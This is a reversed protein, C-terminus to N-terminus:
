SNFDWLYQCFYTGADSTATDHSQFVSGDAGVAGSVIGSTLSQNAGSALSATYGTAALIEAGASATGITIDGPGTSAGFAEQAILEISTITLAAVAYLPITESAAASIDVLISTSINSLANTEFDEVTLTAAAIQGTVIAAAAALDNTDILAHDEAFVRTWDDVGLAEDVKMWLATTDDTNNVEMYLSGKNCLTFPAFDAPTGQGWIIAPAGEPYMGGGANHNPMGAPFSAGGGVLFFAQTSAVM